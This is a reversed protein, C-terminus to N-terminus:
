AKAITKNLHRYIYHHKLLSPSNRENRFYKKTVPGELIVPLKRKM